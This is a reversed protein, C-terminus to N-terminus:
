ETVERHTSSRMCDLRAKIKGMREQAKSDKPSMRVRLLYALSSTSIMQMFQIGRTLGYVEAM